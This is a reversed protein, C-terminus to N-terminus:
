KYQFLGKHSIFATKHKDNEDIEVQYNGKLADLLSFYKKGALMSFIYDTYLIPYIDYVTM